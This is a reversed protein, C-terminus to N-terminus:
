KKKRGPKKNLAKKPLKIQLMVLKGDTSVTGQMEGNTNVCPSMIDFMMDNSCLPFEIAMNIDDEDPMVNVLGTTVPTEEEEKWYDVFPFSPRKFEIELQDIEPSKTMTESTTGESTTTAAIARIELSAEVVRNKFGEPRSKIEAYPFQGMALTRSKIAGVLSWPETPHYLYITVTEDEIEMVDAVLEMEQGMVKGFAMAGENAKKLLQYQERAEDIENKSLGFRSEVKNTPGNLVGELLKMLTKM